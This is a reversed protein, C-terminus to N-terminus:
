MSESGDVFCCFDNGIDTNLFRKFSLKVGSVWASPWNAQPANNKPMRLQSYKVTVPVRLVLRSLSRSMRNKLFLKSILSLVLGIICNASVTEM